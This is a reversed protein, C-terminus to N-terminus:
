LKSKQLSGQDSRDGNTFRLKVIGYLRFDNVAMLKDRPKQTILLTAARNAAVKGPIAFLLQLTKSNRNNRNRILPKLHRMLKELISTLRPRINRERRTIERATISPLLVIRRQLM